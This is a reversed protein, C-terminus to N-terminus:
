SEEHLQDSKSELTTGSRLLLELGQSTAPQSNKNDESVANILLSTRHKACKARDYSENRDYVISFLLIM